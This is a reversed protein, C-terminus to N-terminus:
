EPTKRAEFNGLLMASKSNQINSLPNTFCITSKPNQIKSQCSIVTRSRAERSRRSATAPSPPPLNQIKSKSHHTPSAFPPNQIKFKPNAPSTQGVERKAAGAHCPPPLLLRSIKSTSHHTPSIRFASHSIPRRGINSHLPITSKPHHIKSKQHFEANLM